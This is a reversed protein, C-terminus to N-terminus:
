GASDDAPAKAKRKGAAKSGSRTTKKAGTRAAPKAAAPKASAAQAATPKAARGGKRARKGGDGSKAVREEILRLAEDLQVEDPSRDKPLNAYVKGHKVFPGYRGTGAEVPKGDSPHQGVVRLPNAPAGGRRAGKPQALIDIARNIGVTLLEETNALSRYENGHKLYPGFRGLGAQVQKGDTPHVGIDRPLALLKLAMELTM